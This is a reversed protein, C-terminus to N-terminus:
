ASALREITPQPLKYPCHHGIKAAKEFSLDWRKPPVRPREQPIRAVGVIQDLIRQHACKGLLV